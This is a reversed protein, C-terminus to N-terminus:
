KCCTCSALLAHCYATHKYTYALTNTNLHYHRVQYALADTERNGIGAAFVPEDLPRGARHFVESVQQLTAFALVFVCRRM